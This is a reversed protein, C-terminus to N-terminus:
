YSGLKPMFQDLRVVLKQTTIAVDHLWALYQLDDPSLTRGRRVQLWRQLVLHGGVHFNAAAVDVLRLGCHRNIQLIDENLRPFGRAIPLDLTGVCELPQRENHQTTLHCAILQSGIEALEFFSETSRPWPIRPFDRQLLSLYAQRYAPSHLVAYVYAFLLRHDRV